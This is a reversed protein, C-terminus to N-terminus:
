IPIINQQNTTTQVEAIQNTYYIVCLLAAILVGMIFGLIGFMLLQKKDTSINKAIKDIVSQNVVTDILDANPTIVTQKDFFLQVANEFNIYYLYTKEYQATPKEIDIIFTRKQFSIQNIFNRRVLTKIIIPRNNAFVYFIIKIQM